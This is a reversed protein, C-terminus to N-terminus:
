KKDSSAFASGCKIGIGGTLFMLGYVLMQDVTGWPAPLSGEIAKGGVMVATFIIILWHPLQLKM